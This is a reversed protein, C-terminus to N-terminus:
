LFAISRVNCQQFIFVNLIFQRFLVLDFFNFVLNFYHCLLGPFMLVLRNKLVLASRVKLYKVGFYYQEILCFLIVIVVM